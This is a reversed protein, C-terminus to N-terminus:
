IPIHIRIIHKWIRKIERVSCIDRTEDIASPIIVLRNYLAIPNPRHNGIKKPFDSLSLNM